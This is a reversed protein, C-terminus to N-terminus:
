LTDTVDRGKCIRERVLTKQEELKKKKKVLIYNMLSGMYFQQEHKNLFLLRERATCVVEQRAVATLRGLKEAM